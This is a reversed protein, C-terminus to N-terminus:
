PWRLWVATCSPSITLRPWTMSVLPWVPIGSAVVDVEGHREIADLDVQLYPPVAVPDLIVNRLPHVQRPQAVSTPEGGFDVVTGVALVCLKWHGHKMDLVQTHFGATEWGHL